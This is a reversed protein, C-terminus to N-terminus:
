ADRKRDLTQKLWGAFKNDAAPLGTVGTSTNPKPMSHLATVNGAAVGVVLWTAGVEVLVVRERQGVATASVVRLLNGSAAHGPQIRKILWAVASIATLVLVLALGVQLLSGASLVPAPAATAPRILEASATAAFLWLGAILFLRMWIPKVM